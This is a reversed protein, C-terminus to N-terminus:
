QLPLPKDLSIIDLRTKKGKGVNNGDADYVSEESDFDNDNSVALTNRDVAAIGEIKDPVEPFKSLDLVLFKPLVRVGAVALDQLGELSPATEPDDWKSGLINSAEGLDVRYLKAVADTRELLRLNRPTLFAVGSLQLDEPPRKPEPSTKLTAVSPM